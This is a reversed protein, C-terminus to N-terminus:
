RIIRRLVKYRFVLELIMAVMITAFLTIIPHIYSYIGVKDIGIFRAAYSIVSSVLSHFIYIFLSLKEAIYEVPKSINISCNKVGILFLSPAALLLGLSSFDVPTELIVSLIIIWGIIVFIFLNTNKVNYLKSEFRENVLYGFMFWPMAKCIFNIKYSWNLGLSDVFVTLVSSIIFLLWTFKIATTEKKDKVIYMWVFYAEAMAILYWLPRAWDITCFVFFKIPTKWSFVDALWSDLTNNFKNVVFMYPFWVVIAFILIKVIKRFRAKIKETTCGYSYYGAIMFFLPVACTSIGSVVKGFIGPFTVHMFVVGFCAICKLLNLCNNRGSRTDTLHTNAKSEM